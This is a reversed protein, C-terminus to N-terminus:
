PLLEDTYVGAIGARMLAEEESRDNVTHTLLPVTGCLAACAEQTEALTVTVALVRHGRVFRHLTWWPYQSRYTTFIPAGFGGDRAQAYEGIFYIQPHIRARLEPSETALRSLLALNDGKTDTIMRAEPHAAFWALTEELSAIRYPASSPQEHALGLGNSDLPIGLRDHAEHWDHVAWVGGDAAGLFDVEFWRTGRAFNQELAELANTYTMGRLSGGAHAIHAPVASAAPAPLSPLAVTEWAGRLGWAASRLPGRFVFAAGLAVITAILALEVRRRM